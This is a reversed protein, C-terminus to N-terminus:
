LMMYVVLFAKLKVINNLYTILLYTHLIYPIIFLYKPIKNITLDINNRIEKLDM